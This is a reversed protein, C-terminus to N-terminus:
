KGGVPKNVELAYDKHVNTNVTYQSKIFGESM